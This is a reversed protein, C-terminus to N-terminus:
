YCVVWTLVNKTYSIDCLKMNVIYLVFIIKQKHYMAFFDYIVSAHEMLKNNHLFIIVSFCLFALDIWKKFMKM